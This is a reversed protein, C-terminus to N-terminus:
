LASTEAPVKLVDVWLHPDVVVGDCVALHSLCKSVPNSSISQM